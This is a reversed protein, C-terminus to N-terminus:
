RDGGPWRRVNIFSYRHQSCPGREGSRRQAGAHQIGQTRRVRPGSARCGHRGDAPRLESQGARRRPSVPRRRTGGVVPLSPMPLGPVRFGDSCMAPRVPLGAVARRMGEINAAHVADTWRRQRSSSWTTPWRTAASGRSSNRRTKETLKKWDDLAAPEGAPQAGARLRRGGPSGCLRRPGGRRGRGGPGTRRPVAGVGPDVTGVLAPDRHAPGSRPTRPRGPPCRLGAPPDVSSVGGWRSPRGPSSGPRASSTTWRSWAPSPIVRAVPGEAGRGACQHLHARSDASHTRNDGM